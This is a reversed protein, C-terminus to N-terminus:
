SRNEFLNEWKFLGMFESAAVCELGFPLYGAYGLVPMEFIEFKHVYPILYHWKNQSGANWMEWLFGCALAATAATIVHVWMCRTTPSFLNKEGFLTKLSVMMLLPSIWLLPFLFDPFVGILTLGASAATLIFAAFLRPRPVRFRVFDEFARHPWSFSRVLRDTALVAPLVTSFPLTAYWFYEWASYGEVPYYWNQVFRNLYEFLWWFGASLPFLALYRWTKHTLLSWGTRRVCLANATVIYGIWIPAFTHDQLTGMWSFRNWALFWSGLMFLVGAIGWWPFRGPSRPSSGARHRLTLFIRVLFFSLLILLFLALFNFATWSFPAHVVYRTRPPLELFRGIPKGWVLAGLLPLGLLMILLTSIQISRRM